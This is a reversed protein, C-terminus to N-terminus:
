HDVTYSCTKQFSQLETPQKTYHCAKAGGPPSLVSAVAIEASALPPTGASQGRLWRSPFSTLGQSVEQKLVTHQEALQIHMPM